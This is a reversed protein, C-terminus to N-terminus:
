LNLPNQPDIILSLINGTRGPASNILDVWSQGGDESRLLLSAPRNATSGGVYIVDHNGPEVKMVSLLSACGVPSMDWNTGGDQSRAVGFYSGDICNEDGPAIEGGAYLLTPSVVASVEGLTYVQTWSVGGNPSHYLGAKGGVYFNEPNSPDLSLNDITSTTTTTFTYVQRWSLSGNDSRFLRESNRGPLLAFLTDTAAPAIVLDDIIGGPATPGDLPVWDGTQINVTGMRDFQARGTIVTRQNPDTIALFLIM